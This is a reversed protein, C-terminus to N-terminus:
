SCTTILDHLAEARLLVHKWSRTMGEGPGHQAQEQSPGESHAPPPSSEGAEAGFWRREGRAGGAGSEEQGLSWMRLRADPQTRQERPAEWLLRETGCAFTAKGPFDSGSTASGRSSCSRRAPVPGLLTQPPGPLTQPCPSLLLSRSTAPVQFSRTPNIEDPLMPPPPRTGEGAPHEGFPHPHPAGLAGM